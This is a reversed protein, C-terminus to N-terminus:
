TPSCPPAVCTIGVSMVLRVVSGVNIIAFLCVLAMFPMPDGVLLLPGRVAQSSELVQM